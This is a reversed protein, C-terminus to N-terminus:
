EIIDKVRNKLLNATNMNLLGILITYIGVVEFITFTKYSYFVLLVGMAIILISMIFTIFFSKDGMLKLKISTLIQKIGSLAIYIGYYIVIYNVFKILNTFLLVAVIAYLIGFVINLKFYENSDGMITSYINILADILVLVGLLVAVTKESMDVNMFIIGMIVFVLALGMECAKIINHKKESKSLKGGLFKDFM